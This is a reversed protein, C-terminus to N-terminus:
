RKKSTSYFPRFCNSNRGTTSIATPHRPFTSMCMGRGVKSESILSITCLHEIINVRLLLLSTQYLWHLYKCFSFKFLQLWPPFRQFFESRLIFIERISALSVKKNFTFVQVKCVTNKRFHYFLKLLSVCIKLIGLHCCVFWQLVNEWFTLHISLHTLSNVKCRQLAAM